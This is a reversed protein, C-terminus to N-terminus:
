RLAYRSSAGTPCRWGNTSAMQRFSAATIMRSGIKLDKAWRPVLGWRVEVWEREGAASARVIGVNTMPAINYRPIAAPEVKLGFALALAAPHSHLEYRGCM